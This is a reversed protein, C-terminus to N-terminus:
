GHRPGVRVVPEIQARLLARQQGVVGRPRDLQGVGLEVVDVGVLVAVTRCRSPCRTTSSCRPCRCSPGATARHPSRGTM